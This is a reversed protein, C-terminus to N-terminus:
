GKGHIECVTWYFFRKVDACINELVYSFPFGSSTICNPDCGVGFCSFAEIIVM